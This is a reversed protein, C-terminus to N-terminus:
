KVDIVQDIATAIQAIKLSAGQRWFNRLDQNITRNRNNMYINYFQEPNFLVHIEDPAIEALFDYETSRHIKPGMYVQSGSFFPEFVSHISREYGGGVYSQNFLSYFECLVGSMNLIVIPTINKNEGLLSVYDGIGLRVFFDQIAKIGEESLQHPVILVHIKSKKILDIFQPTNFILLDSEWASGLIIREEQPIGNLHQLYNQLKPISHLSSSAAKWRETIREIRFDFAFTQAKPNIHRFREEEKVTAAVIIDFLCFVHNKYWSDKKVAGSVLVFKKKLFKLLLLEPFFDYRCFIIVPATIWNQLLQSTILPLRLIRMQSSFKRQLAICKEEVSPSSFILEIKKDHDLYYLVLPRVQELEGESSVEFCYDARHKEQKFSQCGLDFLNKQEFQKRSHPIIKFVASLLLRLLHLLYLLALFILNSM